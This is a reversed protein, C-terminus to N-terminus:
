VILLDNFLLTVERNDRRLRSIFDPINDIQLVHMRRYIRRIITRDKYSSFDHGTQHRLLTIIQSLYAAAESDARM